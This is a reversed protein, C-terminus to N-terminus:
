TNSLCLIVYANAIIHSLCWLSTLCTVIGGGWHICIGKLEIIVMRGKKINHTQIVSSKRIDSLYPVRLPCCYMVAASM